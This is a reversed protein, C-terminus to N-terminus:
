IQSNQGLELFSTARDPDAVTYMCSYSCNGGWAMLKETLHGAKSVFIKSLFDLKTCSSDFFAQQEVSSLM